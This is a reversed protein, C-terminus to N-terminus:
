LVTTDSGVQPGTQADNNIVVRHAPRSHRRVSAGREARSAIEAGGREVM